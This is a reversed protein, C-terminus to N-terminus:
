RLAHVGGFCILGGTQADRRRVVPYAQPTYKFVAEVVDVVLHLCKRTYLIFFIM